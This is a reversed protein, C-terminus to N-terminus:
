GPLADGAQQPDGDPPSSHTAIRTDAIRSAQLYTPAHGLVATLFPARKLEYVTGATQAIVSASRPVNRLLAIEGVGDGRGCRRLLQGDQLVDFEGAAIAYYADGEDGQKILCDGAAVELPTLSAALGEIAPVPLEAFLPLSRLLAIEVVPVPAEADLRFLSRGCALAALPLLAATGILALKTGGLHLLLPVLLCGLALGAM